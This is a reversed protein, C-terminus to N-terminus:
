SLIGCQTPSTCRCDLAERLANRQATLEGIKRDTETLLDQLFTEIPHRDKSLRGISPKIARISAISLGMNRAAVVAQIVQIDEQLYRRRGSKRVAPPLLRESEYYRITSPAIGLKAAVEGISFVMDFFGQRLSFEMYPILLM